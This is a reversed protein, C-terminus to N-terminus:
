LRLVRKRSISRINSVYFRSLRELQQSIVHSPSANKKFQRLSRKSYSKMQPPICPLHQSTVSNQPSTSSSSPITSRLSHPTRPNVLASLTTLNSSLQYLYNMRKWADENKVALAIARAANAYQQNNPSSQKNNPRSHQHNSRSQQSSQSSPTSATTSSNIKSDNFPSPNSM